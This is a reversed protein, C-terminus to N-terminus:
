ALFNKIENVTLPRWAGEPLSGLTIPGIRIRCLERITLEANQLMLRVEHKKGEKVTIKVTGRRVKKVSAPKILQGHLFIGSSLKKLHDLTIEQDTKALYEKSIQYSPHIVRNAFAGDNTVLILGQTDQDLRGVTFLRYPLHSFLDLVVRAGGKRRLSTCLYGKPKNLLFYLKPEKERILKGNVKICCKQPDVETQPLYVVKGNITVRGEFIMKECARRSALGAQALTKSLRKKM